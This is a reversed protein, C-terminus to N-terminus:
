VDATGCHNHHLPFFVCLSLLSRVHDEFHAGAHDIRRCLELVAGTLKM